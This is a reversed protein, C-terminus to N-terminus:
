KKKRDDSIIQKWDKETIGLRERRAKEWRELDADPQKHALALGEARGEVVLQVYYRGVRRDGTRLTEACHTQGSIIIPGEEPGRTCVVIDKACLNAATEFIEEQSREMAADADTTTPSKVTAM